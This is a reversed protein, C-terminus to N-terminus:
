ERCCNQLECTRCVGCEECFDFEEGNHIQYHERWEKLHALTDEDIWGEMKEQASTFFRDGDENTPPVCVWKWLAIMDRKITVRFPLTIAEEDQEQNRHLDRLANMAELYEGEKMNDQNNEIVRMLTEMARTTVSM